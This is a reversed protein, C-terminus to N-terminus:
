AVWSKTAFPADSFAQPLTTEGTTDEGFYYLWAQDAMSADIPLQAMDQGKYKPATYDDIYVSIEDRIPQYTNQFGKIIKEVRDWECLRSTPSHSSFKFRQSTSKKLM